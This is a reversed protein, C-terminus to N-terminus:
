VSKTYVIKSPNYGPRDKKVMINMDYMRRRLGKILIPSVMSWSDVKHAGLSMKFVELGQKGEKPLGGLNLTKCGISRLHEMDKLYILANAGLDYGDRSTGIYIAFARGKYHINIKICVINEGKTIYSLTAIGSIMQKKLVCRTVYPLYDMKVNSYGRDIRIANISDMLRYLDDVMGPDKSLHYQLNAEEARKIKRKTNRNMRDLIMRKDEGIPIVFEPNRYIHFGEVDIKPNPSEDLGSNQFKVYNRAKLYSIMETHIAKERDEKLLYPGTYFHVSKLLKLRQNLVNQSLDVIGSVGGILEEEDFFGMYIPRLAESKLSDLYSRTLFPSIGHVEVKEGWTGPDLERIKIV